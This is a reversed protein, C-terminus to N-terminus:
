QRGMIIYIYNSDWAFDHMQVINPHKLKKLLSIESVISDVECQKLKARPVCKAAFM